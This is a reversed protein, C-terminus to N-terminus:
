WEGKEREKKKKKTDKKEKEGGKEIEFEKAIGMTKAKREKRQFSICEMREGYSCSLVFEIM